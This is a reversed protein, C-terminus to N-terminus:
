GSAVHPITNQPASNGAEELSICCLGRCHNSLRGSSRNRKLLISVRIQWTITLILFASVCSCMYYTRLYHRWHDATILLICSWLHEWPVATLHTRLWLSSTSSLGISSPPLSLTDIRLRPRSFGWASGQPVSNLWALWPWGLDGGVPGYM